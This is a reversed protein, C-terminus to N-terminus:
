VTFLSETYGLSEGPCEFPINDQRLLRGVLVFM